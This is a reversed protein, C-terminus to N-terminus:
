PFPDAAQLARELAAVQANADAVCGECFLLWGESSCGESAEQLQREAWDLGLRAQPLTLEAQQIREILEQRVREPPAVAAPVAAPAPAQPAAGYDNLFSLDESDTGTDAMSSLHISIENM